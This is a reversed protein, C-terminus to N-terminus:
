AAYHGNARIVRSRRRHCEDWGCKGAVELDFNTTGNACASPGGAGAATSIFANNTTAISSNCFGDTGASATYGKLNYILFGACSDNWPIEPVYSKASGDTPTNTTSWYTTVPLGGNAPKEANYFDEFDAGGVSVNYVSEGWGTIGIGPIAYLTGDGFDGDCDSSGGDGASVFISTGEAAATQFTSRFAANSPETNFAECVGYSQSVISPPSASATLNELALLGGFTTTDECVALVISANPAMASAIEADLDAEGDAGNTGPDTCANPGTPHSTTVTGTYKSLFESRYTAVDNSFSDSDEVLTITQGEGHVNQQFLPNVNYITEFDAPVLPMLTTSVFYNPQKPVLYRQPAFDHIQALGAVAPALAEPIKQNTMNAFHTKGNVELYDVQTHFAERLTAATGSIDIVVPRINKLSFYFLLLRAYGQPNSLLIQLSGPSHERCHRSFRIQGNGTQFTVEVRNRIEVVFFRYRRCQPLTRFDLKRLLCGLTRVGSQILRLSRRNGVQLYGPYQDLAEFWAFNCRPRDPQLSASLDSNLQRDEIPVLAVNSGCSAFDLACPLLQGPHLKLQLPIQRAHELVVSSSAEHDLLVLYFHQRSRFLGITQILRVVLSHSACVGLHQDRLSRQKLQLHIVNLRKVTGPLARQHNSAESEHIAQGLRDIRRLSAPHM